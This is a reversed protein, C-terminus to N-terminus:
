RYVGGSAPEVKADFRYGRGRVTTIWDDGGPAAKLKGRLQAMHMDVTRTRISGDRYGWVDTLLESRTVPRHLHGILYTLIAGERPTLTITGGSWAIHLRDVDLEVAARGVRYRAARSAPQEAHAQQRRLLGRARAILERIGFPKTVYDDAGAEIGAVIDSEAGKATLMLVPTLEGRARYRRLVSLGDLGPLMIDLLVLEYTNCTLRALGERGDAVSDVRFGQGSFLDVLGDRIPAEDEVILVRPGRSADSPM